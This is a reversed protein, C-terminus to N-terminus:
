AADLAAQWRAVQARVQNPATGGLHDRAALSGRLKLAEPADEGIQPSFSRLDSLSIDELGVGREVAFRM